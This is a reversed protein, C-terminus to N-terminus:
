NLNMVVIILKIRKRIERLLTYLSIQLQIIIIHISSTVAEVVVQPSIPECTYAIDWAQFHDKLRTQTDRNVVM